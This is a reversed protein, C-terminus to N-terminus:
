KQQNLLFPGNSLSTVFATISVLFKLRKLVCTENLGSLKCILVRVSSLFEVLASLKIELSASRKFAQKYDPKGVASSAPLPVGLDFVFAKGPTSSM